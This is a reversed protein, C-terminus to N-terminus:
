CEELNAEEKLADSYVEALGGFGRRGVKAGAVRCAVRLATRAPLGLRLAAVLAANFADGAGVSDVVGGSPPFAPSSFVKGTRSDLATAGEDGWPFVLLAGARSLKGRFTEVAEGMTSAGNARAVDKSVVAVDGLPLLEEHGRGVKEVEVSVTLGPRASRVHRIMAKVNDLNRGEFHIWDYEDLTIRQEFDELTLERLDRNTHIITRSGTAASLIVCSNPSTKGM